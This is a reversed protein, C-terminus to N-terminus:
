AGSERDHRMVREVWSDLGNTAPLDFVGALRVRYVVPACSVDAATLRDSVLWQRDELREQLRDLAALFLARAEDRLQADDGGGTVRHHVLKMLGAALEGRGFREWGEIEWQEAHGLGFLKPTHPFNADLYRLIAASDFLVTDGHVMVPTLYQGSIAVVAEREAPDISRFEYDLGKYGLAVRVKFNNSTEFGHITIPPAM